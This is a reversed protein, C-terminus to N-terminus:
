NNLNDYPLKELINEKLCSLEICRLSYIVNTQTCFLPDQFHLRFEVNRHCNIRIEVDYNFRMTVVSPRTKRGVPDMINLSHVPLPLTPPLGASTTRGLGTGSGNM